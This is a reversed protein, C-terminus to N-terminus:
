VYKVSQFGSGPPVPALVTLHFTDTRFWAKRLPYLSLAEPQFRHHAPLFTQHPDDIEVRVVLLADVLRRRQQDLPEALVRRVGPRRDLRRERLDPLRQPRVADAPNSERVISHHQAPDTRDGLVATPDPLQM